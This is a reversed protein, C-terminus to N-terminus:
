AQLQMGNGIPKADGLGGDMQRRLPVSFDSLQAAFFFFFSAAAITALRQTPKPLLFPLIENLGPKHWFAANWAVGSNFFTSHSMPGAESSCRCTFGRLGQKRKLTAWKLVQAVAAERCIDLSLIYCKVCQLDTSDCTNSPDIGLPGLTLFGYFAVQGFWAKRTKMSSKEEQSSAGTVVHGQSICGASSPRHRSPKCSEPGAGPGQHWTLQFTEVTLQKRNSDATVTRFLLM